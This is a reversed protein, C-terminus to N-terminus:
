EEIYTIECKKLYLRVAEDWEVDLSKDLTFVNASTGTVCHLEEEEYRIHLYLGNIQEAPMSLQSHILFREVDAPSIQLIVRFSGPLKKGKILSFCIPKIVSWASLEGIQKEELEADTYYGSKIHGDISFTNFTVIVAERVLFHDFVNGVFLKGTFQKIDDLKLAIM